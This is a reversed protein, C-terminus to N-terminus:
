DPLKLARSRLPHKGYVYRLQNGPVAPAATNTIPHYGSYQYAAYKSFLPIPSPLIRKSLNQFTSQSLAM